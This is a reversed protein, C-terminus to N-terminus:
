LLSCCTIEFVLFASSIFKRWSFCLHKQSSFLWEPLKILASDERLEFLAILYLSKFQVYYFELKYYFIYHIEKQRKKEWIRYGM